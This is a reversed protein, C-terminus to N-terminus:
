NLKNKKLPYWFILVLALIVFGIAPLLTSISFIGERVSEPLPGAGVKNYGILTLLGGSLGAAGGQGLKRAFSYLSYVTADERVGNKRESYDIVDTILAWSVMSFIGLGLWSAFSLGVYVWVNQPRLFFLLLSIGGSFLSAVASIEAKGFRLALPKAFAAAIIMGLMMVLTSISQASPSGYYDPFLYNAMQQMTMQSLLTVISAVIISVLARNKVASTLAELIGRGERASSEIKVRERVLFYCVFHCVVALISFAGAIVTFRSGSLVAFTEGGVDKQEYALIPVIVGIIAGALTSGMTRFTSLSQRDGADPSIASAMSGYPINVMTYFVSGWLFYSVALWLVKAWPQWTAIGNQYVLFSALACPVTAIRIWPRFKGEEGGKRKDCIRGMTLDTFADFFRALMMIIGVVSADVGIADTYFKLLFSSSLIFTFDNGLDGFLYGIKDRTGFPRNSNQLEMFEIVAKKM